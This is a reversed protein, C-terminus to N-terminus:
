VRCLIQAKVIFVVLWLLVIFVVICQIYSFWSDVHHVLLQQFTISLDEPIHHQAMPDTTGWMKLIVPDLLPLCNKSNPQEEQIAQSFIFAKCVKLIGAVV